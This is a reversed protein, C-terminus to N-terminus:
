RRPRRRQGNVPADGSRRPLCSVSLAPLVSPREEASRSLPASVPDPESRHAHARPEPSWRASVAFRSTNSVNKSDARMPNARAVQGAAEDPDVVGVGLEDTLLRHVQDADRELRHEALV